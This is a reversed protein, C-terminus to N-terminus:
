WRGFEVATKLETSAEGMGNADTEVDTLTYLVAGDCASDRITAVYRVNAQQARLNVTVIVTGVDGEAFTAVSSPVNPDVQGGPPLLEAAGFIVGQARATGVEAFTVVALALAVVGASLLKRFGSKM